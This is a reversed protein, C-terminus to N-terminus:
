LITPHIGELSGPIYRLADKYPALDQLRQVLAGFQQVQAIFKAKGRLAWGIRKRKSNSGQVSQYKPRVRPLLAMDQSRLETEGTSQLNSVTTDAKAFIEHISFLIKEVMSFTKPDDLGKHHDDELKTQSIGVNQAWRQFLLKDAEFQAIIARSEDGFDRYSDVREIVDLCTSFLSVLGAFGAIGTALSFPDM